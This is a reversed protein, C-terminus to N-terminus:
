ESKLLNIIEDNSLEMYPTFLTYTDSEESYYYARLRELDKSLTELRINDNLHLQASASEDSKLMILHKFKQYVMKPSIYDSFLFNSPKDLQMITHVGLEPGKDLILELAQKFTKISSSSTGENSFSFGGFGFADDSSEQKKENSIEMDMKLERFREQGLILLITNDVTENYIGEALQKLYKGRDKRGEIIECYGEEELLELQETYISDENSLCNFVKFKYDLGKSQTYSILSIFLNMTTRTVQEVDNLGFLLINESYDKRLTINLDNQNISINRGMYAIPYKARKKGQEMVTTDLKFLQSGNFYFEGNSQHNEAKKKALDILKAANEKDTYYAQFQVQSDVHHYYIQGTSLKSTIESSREVMRESDSTACKLLYHDSVNNLIENSIETGSLTQTALILHVGQSRGEKAIKTIIESIENSVTRPIDSGVRFMEHCEDVVVLIQPMTANPNQKNYEVLNNVSCDRLQRGREIMRERLERLIELTIQQDSNDVLLSKVHKIGKYRNFEVGGLKFDLLYLQLDEPAYKLIASGIINHLFVSKGSGSQGIIFSHVHNVMDMTFIVENNSSKGIPLNITEINKEYSNSASKYFDQTLIVAEEKKDAESNIYLLCAKLLNTNKTIPTIKILPWCHKVKNILTIKNKYINFDNGIFTYKENHFSPSISRYVWFPNNLNIDELRIDKSYFGEAIWKFDTKQPHFSSHRPTLKLEYFVESSKDMGKFYDRLNNGELKYNLAFLNTKIEDLPKIVIFGCERYQAVLTDIQKQYSKFWSTNDKSVIMVEYPFPITQNKLCYDYYNGYNKKIDLLKNNINNLYEKFKNEETIPNQKYIKPNINKYFFDGVLENGIEVFTINLKNIPICLLMNLLYNTIDKYYVQKYNNECTEFVPTKIVNEEIVDTYKLHSPFLPVYNRDVEKKIKEIINFAEKETLYPHSIPHLLYPYLDILKTMITVLEDKYQNQKEISSNSMKKAYFSLIEKIIFITNM